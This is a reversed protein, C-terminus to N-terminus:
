DFRHFGIKRRPEPPPTFWANLAVFIQNFRGDYHSQSEALERNTIAFRRLHVFARIIEVSMRIARRSKLLTAAMLAGHETFAHPLKRLGGHTASSSTVIQSKLHMFEKRTLQFMFDTPFRQRNRRVAQLLVKAPVEYFEALHPSLIVKQGRVSFIRSTVLEVAIESVATPKSRKM